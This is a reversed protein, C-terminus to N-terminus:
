CRSCSGGALARRGSSIAILGERFSRIKSAIAAGFKGPLGREIAFGAIEEGSLRVSITFFVLVAALSLLSKAGAMAEGPAAHDRQDPALLLALSVITAMSAFDFMREVTWIAIQLAVPLKTRRAVLYPRTLDAVRGLLAVATFGIVQTGLLYLPPLRKTPRLFVVWRFARVLFAGYILLVGLLINSWRM